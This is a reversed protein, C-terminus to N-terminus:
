DEDKKGFKNTSRLAEIMAQKELPRFFHYGQLLATDDVEKILNYQDINEVGVISAKMGFGRILNM